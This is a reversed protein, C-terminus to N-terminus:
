RRAQPIKPKGGELEVLGMRNGAPDTFLGLVVVGPVEFRPYVTRGGNAEIQELTASIDEVGVYLIKEFAPSHETNEERLTAPLPSVVATRFRGDAAIHWGFIGSYFASQQQMNQGAIDFFVVPAGPASASTAPVSSCAAGAAIGLALASVQLVRM